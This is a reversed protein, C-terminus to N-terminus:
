NNFENLLKQFPDIKEEPILQFKMRSLPSFGFEAGIRIVVESMDKFLKVHPNQVYGNHNGNKDHTETFIQGKIEKVCTIVMAMANAYIILQDVDQPALLKNTILQNAKDNFIKRSVASDLGKVKVAELQTISEFKVVELSKTVRDKRSTGQLSKL